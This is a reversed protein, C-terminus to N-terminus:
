HGEGNFFRSTSVGGNTQSVLQSRLICIHCYCTEITRLPTWWPCLRIEECWFSMTQCLSVVGGDDVEADHGEGGDDGGGGGVGPVNGVYSWTEWGNEGDIGHVEGVEGGGVTSDTGGSNVM